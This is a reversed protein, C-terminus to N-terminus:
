PRVILLLSAAPPSPLAAFVNNPFRRRDLKELVSRAAVEIVNLDVFPSTMRM